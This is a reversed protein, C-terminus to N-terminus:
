ILKPCYDAVPCDDCRPKRANCWSRGLSTMLHSFMTWEERPVIENLAFEVKDPHTQETLGMRRSLRLVHTDVTIGPVGFANGLLCNATKRGVGHLTLLEEMTGPVEGGFNEVLSRAANQISKTKQRFFGTSRIAEELEDAPAELYDRAARYRDFLDPTVMNVRADTCQAALITAVLLELPTDFDLACHADPFEKQLAAIIALVRKKTRADAKAPTQAKKAAPKRAVKKKTKTPTKKVTKKKAKKKAPM